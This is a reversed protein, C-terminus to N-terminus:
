KVGYLTFVGEDINGSQSIYKVRDITGSLVGTSVSNQPGAADYRTTTTRHQAGREYAMQIDDNTGFNFFKTISFSTNAASDSRTISSGIRLQTTTSGANLYATSFTSSTNGITVDMNDVTTSSQVRQTVIIYHRYTSDLGTFTVSAVPSSVVQESVKVFDSSSAALETQVFATTALQTTNTTTAATPATPVGTLAPSALPAKLDLATQQATSVPKASDATNDVSGLGVDGKVLTVVGTKGAVSTVPASPNPKNKWQGSSTEFTLVENDAVSTITADTLDAVAQDDKATTEIGALKTFQADTFASVEAEYATKIEAGTQDATAATEIGALKTQEADSFENTDANAEYATKIEANTQDATASAEILDLKAGDVTLDRGDVTSGATTLVINGNTLTLDGLDGIIQGTVQHDGTTKAGSATIEVKKTNATNSIEPIRAGEAATGDHKHGTAVAMVTVLANFEDNTDAALITNGDTYSSQRTYGTM